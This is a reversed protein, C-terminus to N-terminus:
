PVHSILVQADLTHATHLDGTAQPPLFALALLPRAVALPGGVPEHAVTPDGHAASRVM